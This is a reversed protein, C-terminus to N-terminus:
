KSIHPIIFATIVATIYALITAGDDDQKKKNIMYSINNNNSTDSLLLLEHYIVFGISFLLSSFIICTMFSMRTAVKNRHM